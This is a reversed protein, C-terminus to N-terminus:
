GGDKGTKNAIAVTLRRITEQAQEEDVLYKVLAGDFVAVIIAACELRGIGLGRAEAVLDCVRGASQSGIRPTVDELTLVGHPFQGM